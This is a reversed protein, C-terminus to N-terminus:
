CAFVIEIDQTDSLFDDFISNFYEFQDMKNM